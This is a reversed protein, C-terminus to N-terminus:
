PFVTERSFAAAPSVTRPGGRRREARAHLLTWGNRSDLEIRGGMLEALERAIALGLGSGRPARGTSATSASSSRSSRRPPFAPVTTRSRSRRAAATSHRRSGCRGHRGAHARARERCSGASRSCARPTPSRPCRRSRRSRSCAAPPLPASRSSRARARERAGVLDVPERSSRRAPRRRAALPRAPRDRAEDAPDVQERMQALFEERTAEDVEPDDLLELFGGLSFLPTRLEHSANAIFEGRARDLHRSGCACGSSRAPSSASSTRAPTSWRRTSGAPPSASPRRRSGGSGGPSSRRAPTASPSRSRSDRPRRRRLRAPPRRRRDALQDHLPAALM